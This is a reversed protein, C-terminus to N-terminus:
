AAARRLLAGWGMIALLSILGFPVALRPILSPGFMGAEGNAVYMGDEAIRIEAGPQAFILRAGEDFLPLLAWSYLLVWGIALCVLTLAAAAIKGTPHLLREDLPRSRVYAVKLEKRSGLRRAAVLFAEDESLGTKVLGDVSERLHSELEDVEDAYFSGNRLLPERWQAIRVDLDKM